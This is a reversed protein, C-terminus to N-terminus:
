RPGSRGIATTAASSATNSRNAPGKASVLDGGCRWQMTLETPCAERRNM